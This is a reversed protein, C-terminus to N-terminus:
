QISKWDKKTIRFGCGTCQHLYKYKPFGHIVKASQVTKCKTCRIHDVHFPLQSYDATLTTRQATTMHKAKTERM